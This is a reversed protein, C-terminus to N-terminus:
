VAEAGPPPRPAGTVVWWGSLASSGARPNGGCGEVGLGSSFDKKSAVTGQSTMTSPGSVQAGAEIRDRIPRPLKPM